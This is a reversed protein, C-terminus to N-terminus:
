QKRWFIAQWNHVRPFRNVVQGTQYDYISVRNFGRIVSVTEVGMSQACDSCLFPTTGQEDHLEHTCQITCLHCEFVEDCEPCRHRRAPATMRGLLDHLDASAINVGASM